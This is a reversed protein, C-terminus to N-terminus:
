RKQHDQEHEKCARKAQKLNDSSLGKTFRGVEMGFISKQPIYQAVFIYAPHRWHGQIVYRGSSWRLHGTKKFIVANGGCVAM